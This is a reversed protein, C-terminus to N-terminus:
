SADARIADKRFPFLLFNCITLAPYCLWFLFVVIRFDSFCVGLLLLALFCFSLLIIRVSSPLSNSLGFRASLRAIDPDMGSRYCWIDALGQLIVVMSRPPLLVSTKACRRCGSSDHVEDIFICLFTLLMFCDNKAYVRGLVDEM